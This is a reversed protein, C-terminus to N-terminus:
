LNYQKELAEMLYAKDDEYLTIQQQLVNLEAVFAKTEQNLTEQESARQLKLNQVLQQDNDTKAAKVDIKYKERKVNNDKNAGALQDIIANFDARAEDLSMDILPLQEKIRDLPIDATSQEVDIATDNTILSVNGLEDILKERRDDDQITEAEEDAKASKVAAAKKKALAEEREAEYKLRSLQKMHDNHSKMDNKLDNQKKLAFANLKMVGFNIWPMAFTALVGIILPLLFFTKWNYAAGDFYAFKTMVDVKAFVVYYFTKWNVAIFALIISGLLRSRLRAELAQFLEKLESM